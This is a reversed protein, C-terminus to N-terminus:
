SDSASWMPPLRTSKGSGLLVIIFRLFRGMKQSPNGYPLGTIINIHREKEFM